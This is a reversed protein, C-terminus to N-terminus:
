QTPHALQAVLRGGRTHTRAGRRRGVCRRSIRRRNIRRRRRAEVAFRFGPDDRALGAKRLHRMLAYMRDGVLEVTRLASTPDDGTGRDRRITRHHCQLLLFLLGVKRHDLTTRTIVAPHLHHMTALGLLITVTRGIMRIARLREPVPEFVLTTTSLLKAHRRCRGM